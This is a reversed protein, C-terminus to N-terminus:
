WLILQSKRKTWSTLPHGEPAAQEDWLCQSADRYLNYQTCYFALLNTTSRARRRWRNWEKWQLTFKSNCKYTESLVYLTEAHPVVLIQDSGLKGSWHSTWPISPMRTNDYLVLYSIQSFWREPLGEPIVHRTYTTHTNGECDQLLRPWCSLIPGHNEKVELFFSTSQNTIGFKM